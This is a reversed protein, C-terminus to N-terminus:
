VSGSVEGYADTYTPVLSPKHREESLLFQASCLCLGTSAFPMADSLAREGLGVAVQGRGM